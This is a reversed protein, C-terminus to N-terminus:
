EAARPKGVADVLVWKVPDSVRLWFTYSRAIGLKRWVARTLYKGMAGVTRWLENSWTNGEDKSWRLMVQPNSGQGTNLGVGPEFVLQVEAAPIRERDAVILHGIRDRIITAGAETYVDPEISYIKGSAYDGVYHRGLAFCHANSRHRSLQNDALNSSWQHWQKTAAGYVWTANGTPFTIVYFEHGEVQYVYAFADDVRAYRSWQWNIAQPSVVVPAYGNAMVLMAHGRDDRSLWALTNDFRCLTFPAAIGKQMFGSPDREFPFDVDGTNQWVETTQEGLLWLQRLDAITALVKDPWGEATAFDTDNWVTASNLDSIRFRPSDPETVIFYGDQYTVSTGGIFDVDAIAALTAGDITYGATSGDVLVITTGNDAWSVRGASTGISGLLVATHASGFRYVASGSVVYVYDNLRYQGRIPGAGVELRQTLGPTGVLHFGEAHAELFWNVCREASVSKSRGAYAGGLFPLKM